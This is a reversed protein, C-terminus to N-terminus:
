LSPYIYMYIYINKSYNRWHTHLVYQSNDQRAPLIGVNSCESNTQVIGNSVSNNSEPGFHALLLAVKFHRAKDCAMTEDGAHPRILIEATFVQYKGGVIAAGAERGVALFTPPRNAPM